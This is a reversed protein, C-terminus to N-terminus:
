VVYEQRLLGRRSAVATADTCSSVQLKELISKVYAKVTGVTVDLCTAPL